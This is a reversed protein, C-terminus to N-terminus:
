DDLDTASRLEELLQGLRDPAYQRVLEAKVLISDAGALRARRAEEISCAPTPRANAAPPCPSCCPVATFSAAASCSRVATHSAAANGVHGACRRAGVISLAGFPLEGLLGAACPRTSVRCGCSSGAGGRAECALAGRTAACACCPAAAARAGEAVQLGFGQLSISLSVSLNLAFFPTQFQELARLEQPATVAYHLAPCTLAAPPSCGAPPWLPLALRARRQRCPPGAPPPPSAQMNVIEVPADLGIAAAFSSMM